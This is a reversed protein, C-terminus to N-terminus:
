GKSGSIGETFDWPKRMFPKLHQNAEAMNTKEGDWTLKKRMRVALAGLVVVETLAAGYEFNSTPQVGAKISEPWNDFHNRVRPLTKPPLSKVTAKMQAEPIIRVSEPRMGQVLVMAKSGHFIAGEEILERSAELQSPRRPRRKGDYWKLTVPGRKGKAPFTYTITSAKPYNFENTPTADAEISEPAGLDLAWFPADMTHCGIDGLQGNGLGWWMRAAGAKLLRHSYPRPRAPGLWLDWDLTAPIPEEKVGKVPGSGSRPTWCEVRSVDGMVGGEFWEKCLRIGETSHGQNGLACLLKKKAALDRMHRCEFVTNAMPKEVYVHKGHHMAYMSAPYHQHDPTAVVVADIQSGLADFMRRYDRFFRFTKGLKKARELAAAAHAENPDCMAVYNEESFAPVLASKARSGCGIFALDLRANAGLVNRPLAMAAACAAAGKMFTRRTVLQHTM